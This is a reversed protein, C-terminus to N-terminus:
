FIALVVIGMATASVGKFSFCVQVVQNKSFPALKSQM